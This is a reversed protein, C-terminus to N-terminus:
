LLRAFTALARETRADQQYARSIRIFNRSEPLVRDQM